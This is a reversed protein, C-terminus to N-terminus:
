PPPDECLEQFVSCDYESCHNNCYSSDISDHCALPRTTDNAQDYQQGSSNTYESNCHAMSCEGYEDKMEPIYVQGDVGECCLCPYGAWRHDILQHHKACLVQLVMDDDTGSRCTPKGSVDEDLTTPFAALPGGYIQSAIQKARAFSEIDSTSGVNDVLSTYVPAQLQVDGWADPTTHSGDNRPPGNWIVTWFVINLSPLLAYATENLLHVYGITTWAPEPPFEDLCTECSDCYKQARHTEKTTYVFTKAPCEQKVYQSTHMDLTIVDPNAYFEFAFLRHNDTTKVELRPSTCDNLFNLRFCVPNPCAANPGSTSCVTRVINDCDTRGNCTAPTIVSVCEGIQPGCRNPNCEPTCGNVRCDISPIEICQYTGDGRDIKSYCKSDHVSDCIVTDGTTTEYPRFKENCIDPFPPPSQANEVCNQLWQIDLGEYVKESDETNHYIDYRMYYGDEDPAGRPLGDGTTAFSLSADSVFRKIADSTTRAKLLPEYARRSAAAGSSSGGAEYTTTGITGSHWSSADSNGIASLYLNDLEDAFLSGDALYAVNRYVGVSKLFNTRLVVADGDVVYGSKMTYLLRWDNSEVGDPGIEVSTRGSAYENLWYSSFGTSATVNYSARTGDMMEGADEMDVYTASARSANDYYLDFNVLYWKDTGDWQTKFYVREETCGNAFTYNRRFCVRENCTDNPNQASCQTTRDQYAKIRTDEQNTNWSEGSTTNWAGAVTDSNSFANLCQGPNTVGNCLAPQYPMECTYHDEVTDTDSNNCYNILSCDMAQGCDVEDTVSVWQDYYTSQQCEDTATSWTGDCRGRTTTNHNYCIADMDSYHHNAEDDQMLCCSTNCYDRELLVGADLVHITGQPLTGGEAINYHCSGDGGCAADQSVLSYLKGNSALYYPRGSQSEYATGNAHFSYNECAFSTAYVGVDELQQSSPCVQSCDRDYYTADCFYRSDSSNWVTEQCHAEGKPSCYNISYLGVHQRECTKDGNCVGEEALFTYMKGDKLRLYREGGYTLCNSDNVVSYNAYATYEVGHSDLEDVSPCRQNCDHDYFSNDCVFKVGDWNTDQCHALGRPVCYSDSQLGITDFHCTDDGACENLQDIYTYRYGDKMYLYPRANYLVCNSEDIVGDFYNLGHSSDFFSGVVTTPCIQLCPVNPLAQDCEYAQQSGTYQVTGTCDGQCWKSHNRVVSGTQFSADWDTNVFCSASGGCFPQTIIQTYKYGDSAEYWTGSCMSRTVTRAALASTGSDYYGIPCDTACDTLLSVCSYPTDSTPDNLIAECANTLSCTEYCYIDAGQHVFDENDLCTTDGGCTGPSFRTCYKSTSSLYENGECMDTEVVRDGIQAGVPCEKRCDVPPSPACYREGVEDTLVYVCNEIICSSGTESSGTDSDRDGPCVPCESDPSGPPCVVSDHNPCVPMPCESDPSSPPCVVLECRCDDSDDSIPTTSKDSIPAEEPLRGFLWWYYGGMGGGCVILTFLVAFVVSLWGPNPPSM